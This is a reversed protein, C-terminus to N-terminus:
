HRGGVEYGRLRGAAAYVVIVLISLSQRLHLPSAQEGLGKEDEHAEHDRSSSADAM